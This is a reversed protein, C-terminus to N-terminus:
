CCAEKIESEGGMAGVAKGLGHEDALIGEDEIV